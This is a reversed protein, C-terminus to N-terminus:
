GGYGTTQKVFNPHNSSIQAALNTIICEEIGALKQTDARSVRNNDEDDKSTLSSALVGYQTDSSEGETKKGQQKSASMKVM